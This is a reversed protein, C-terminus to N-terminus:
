LCGINTRRNEKEFILIKLSRKTSQLIEHDAYRKFILFRHVNYM